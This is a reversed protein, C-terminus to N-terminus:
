WNKRGDMQEIKVASWDLDDILRLNVAYIRETPMAGEGGHQKPTGDANYLSAWDPSDGWTQMGCTACFHHLNVGRSSYTTEGGRSLFELEDPRYYAWVAGTRACYSCNCSKAESPQSPLAIRTAGCHCSATLTM